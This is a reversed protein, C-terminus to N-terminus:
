HSRRLPLGPLGLFPLCPSFSSPLLPVLTRALPTEIQLRFHFRCNASLRCFSNARKHAREPKDDEKEGRCWIEILHRPFSHISQFASHFSGLLVLGSPPAKSLFASGSPERHEKSPYLHWCVPTFHPRSRVEPTIIIETTVWCHRSRTAKSRGASSHKKYSFGLSCGRLIIWQSRARRKRSAHWVPFPRPTTNLRLVLGLVYRYSPFALLPSSLVKPESENCAESENAHWAASTCKM